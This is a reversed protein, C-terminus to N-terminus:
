ERNKPFFAIARFFTKAHPLAQSGLLIERAREPIPLSDSGKNKMPKRM